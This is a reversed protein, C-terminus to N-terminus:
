PPGRRQDFAARAGPRIAAGSHLAKGPRAINRYNEATVGPLPFLPFRRRIARPEPMSSIRRSSRDRVHRELCQGLSEIVRLVDM